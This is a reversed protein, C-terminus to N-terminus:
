GRNSYYGDRWEHWIMHSLPFEETAYQRLEEDKEYDVSVDWGM